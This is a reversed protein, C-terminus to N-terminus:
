YRRHLDGVSGGFHTVVAVTQPATLLHDCLRQCRFLFNLKFDTQAKSLLMFGINTICVSHWCVRMSGARSLCGAGIVPAANPANQPGRAPCTKLCGLETFAHFMFLATSEEPLLGAESASLSRRCFNLLSRLASSMTPCMKHTHTHAYYMMLRKCSM